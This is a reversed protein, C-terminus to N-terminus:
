KKQIFGNKFRREIRRLKYYTQMSKQKEMENKLLAKIKINFPLKVCKKCFIDGGQIKKQCILCRM